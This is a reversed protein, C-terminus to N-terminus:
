HLYLKPFKFYFLVKFFYYHSIRPTICIFNVYEWPFSNQVRHNTLGYLISIIYCTSIVGIARAMGNHETRQATDCFVMMIYNHLMVLQHTAIQHLLIWFDWSWIFEDHSQSADGASAHCDPEVLNLFKLVM